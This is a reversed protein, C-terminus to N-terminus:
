RFAAPLDHITNFVYDLCQACNLIKTGDDTNLQDLSESGPYISEVGCETIDTEKEDVNAFRYPKM